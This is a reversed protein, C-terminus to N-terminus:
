QKLFIFYGTEAVILLVVYIIGTKKWSLSPMWWDGLALPSISGVLLAVLVAVLIIEIGTQM